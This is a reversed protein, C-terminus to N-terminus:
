DADESEDDELGDRRASNDMVTARVFKPGFKLNITDTVLVFDTPTGAISQVSDVPFSIEGITAFSRRLWSHRILTVVIEDRNGTAMQRLTDGLDDVPDAERWRGLIANRTFRGYAGIYVRFLDVAEQFYGSRFWYKVRFAEPDELLARKLHQFMLGEYKRRTERHINYGTVDQPRNPGALERVLLTEEDDPLVICVDRHSWYFAM